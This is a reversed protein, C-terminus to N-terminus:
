RNAKIYSENPGGGFEFIGFQALNEYEENELKEIINQLEETTM